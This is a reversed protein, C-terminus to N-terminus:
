ELCYFTKMIGIPSCVSSLTFFDVRSIVSKYSWTPCKKIGEWVGLTVSGQPVPESSQEWCLYMDEPLSDELRHTVAAEGGAMTTHM